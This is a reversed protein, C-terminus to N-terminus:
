DFNKNDRHLGDVVEILRRSDYSWNYRSLVAKKGNEGLTNRLNIDRLKIISEVLGEKDCYTLGCNEADIIRKIPLAESAVVPKGFRMYDFLKNPITANTHQNVPHPIICVDSQNVYGLAREYNLWGKFIVSNELHYCKVLSKLKKEGYGKGIIVLLVNPIERKIDKLAELANDIGRKEELGGLYAILFYKKFCENDIGDEDAMISLDPTNSVVAIKNEKVGLKRLREEAEETVVIIHDSLNVTFLEILQAVYSNRIFINLLHFRNLRYWSRKLMAPYNEANDFVVPLSLFKGIFVATLALPLDRVIMLDIKHKKIVGIIEVIWLPNFFAPFSVFKNLKYNGFIKLRHVNISDIIEVRPRRKINRCILHVKNGNKILTRCIKEVRIDWPYDADWIYLIKKRM